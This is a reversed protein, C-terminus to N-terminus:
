NPMTTTEKRRYLLYLSMNTKPLILPIEILIIVPRSFEPQATFPPVIIVGTARVKEAGKKHM